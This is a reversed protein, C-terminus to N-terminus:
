DYRKDLFFVAGYDKVSRIVRGVAQNVARYAQLRYWRSGGGGKAKDEHEMKKNVRQDRVNPFPLGIVIVGRAMEDTFDMGESVKGRCVAVLFAGSAAAKSYERIVV